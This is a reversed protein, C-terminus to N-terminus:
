ALMQFTKRTMLQFASLKKTASFKNIKEVRVGTNICCLFTSVYITFHLNFGFFHIVSLVVNEFATNKTSTTCKENFIHERKKLMRICPIKILNQYRCSIKDVRTTLKNNMFFISFFFIWQLKRKSCWCRLPIEASSVINYLPFNMSKLLTFAWHIKFSHQFYFLSIASTSSRCNEGFVLSMSYVILNTRIKYNCNNRLLLITLLTAVSEDVFCLFVQSADISSNADAMEDHIARWWRQTTMAFGWFARLTCHVVNLQERLCTESNNSWEELKSSFNSHIILM